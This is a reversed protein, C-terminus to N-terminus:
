KTRISLTPSSRELRAGPITDGAALAAMIETKLPVPEHRVFGQPLAKEDDIVVKDRGNGVSITATPLRLTKQEAAQMLTLMLAKAGDARRSYRDSREKLADIRDAIAGKMSVADLYADLLQEIVREFDTEGEITASKLEEDDALEPYQESLRNIAALVAGADLALRSM